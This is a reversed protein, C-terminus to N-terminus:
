EHAEGADAWALHKRPATNQHASARRVARAVEGTLETAARAVAASGPTTPTM